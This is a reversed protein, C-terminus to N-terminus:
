GCHLLFGISLHLKCDLDDEQRRSKKQKRSIEKQVVVRSAKRQIRKERNEVKESKGLSVFDCNETFLNNTAAKSKEFSLPTNETSEMTRVNRSTSSPNLNTKGNDRDSRPQKQLNKMNEIEEIKEFPIFVPDNTKSNNAATKENETKLSTHSISDMKSETLSQIGLVKETKKSETESGSEDYSSGKSEEKEDKETPVFDYNETISSKRTTNKIESKMLTSQKKEWETRIPASRNNVKSNKNERENEPEDLFQDVLIFEEGAEFSRKQKKKESEFQHGSNDNIGLHDALSWSNNQESLAVMSGEESIWPNLSIKRKRSRSIEVPKLDVGQKGLEGSEIIRNMVIKKTKVKVQEKALLKKKSKKSRKSNTLSVLNEESKSGEESTHKKLQNDSAVEKVVFSQCMKEVNEKSKRAKVQGKKRKKKNKKVKESATATFENAKDVLVSSKNERSKSSRSSSKKNSEHDNSNSAGSKRVKSEKIDSKAMTEKRLIDGCSSKENTKNEKNAMDTSHKEKELKKQTILQHEILSKMQDKYTGDGNETEQCKDYNM